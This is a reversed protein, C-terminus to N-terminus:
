LAARRGKFTELAWSPMWLLGSGQSILAAFLSTTKFQLFLGPQTTFTLPGKTLPQLAEHPSHNERILTLLIGKNDLLNDAYETGQDAGVAAQM